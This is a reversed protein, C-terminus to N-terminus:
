DKPAGNQQQDQRGLEVAEELSQGTVLRYIFSALFILGGAILLLVLKGAIYDSMCQGPWGPFFAM